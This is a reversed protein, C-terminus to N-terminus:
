QPFDFQTLRIYGVTSVICYLPVSIFKLGAIKKDLLMITEFMSSFYRPTYPQMPILTGFNFNGSFCTGPVHVTSFVKYTRVHM